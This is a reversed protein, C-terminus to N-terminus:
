LKLTRLMLKLGPSRRYRFLSALWASSPPFSPRLYSPGYSTFSVSPLPAYVLEFVAISFEGADATDYDAMSIPPISSINTATVSIALATTAAATVPAGLTFADEKLKQVGAHVVDLSDYLSTEKTVVNDEKRHIPLLLQEYSPQLRSIEPTEASPGELHLLSMIDAISADKQSELRSHLNFDLDYFSLVVSVYRAEVSPDYASVNALDRGSKGHDLGAVLGAQIGKDITLGIVAEFAAGYKSSQRCKMVALRFGHVLVWRRGAITTPFRPYFEEDFHLALAMLESDLGAVRDSLEKVQADQIAECQAATSICKEIIHGVMYIREVLCMKLQISVFATVALTTGVTVARNAFTGSTPVHAPQPSPVPSVHSSPPPSSPVTKPSPSPSPVAHAPAPVPTPNHSSAIRATCSTALIAIVLVLLKMM